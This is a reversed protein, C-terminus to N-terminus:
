SASPWFLEVGLGINPHLWWREIFRERGAKTVIDYHVRTSDADLGLDLGVRAYSTVRVQAALGASVVTTHQVDTEVAEFDTGSVAQSSLWTSDLGAGIRIGLDVSRWVSVLFGRVAVRWAASRLGLAVRSDRYRRPLQYAVSMGVGYRVVRAARDVGVQLAPGHVIGIQSSHAAVEYYSGMRPEWTAGGNQEAVLPHEVPQEKVALSQSQM